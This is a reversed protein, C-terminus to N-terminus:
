ANEERTKGPSPGKDGTSDPAATDIKATLERTLINFFQELNEDAWRFGALETVAIVEDSIVIPVIALYSPKSKGLGSFVRTYEDPINRFVATQRNKVAQGTLGEGERFSYPVGAHPYAFTALSEFHGDSDKIYFIGSMIEIESVLLSLLQKGWREPQSDPSTRRVIKSAVAQMDFHGQSGEKRKERKIPVPPTDQLPPQDAPTTTHRTAHIFLWLTAAAITIWCLLAPWPTGNGTLRFGPLVVLLTAALLAAGLAIRSFLIRQKRSEM